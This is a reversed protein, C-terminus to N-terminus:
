GAFYVGIVEMVADFDLDGAYYAAIAALVEDADIRGDGDADYTAAPGMAVAGALAQTVAGAVGQGDGDPEGFTVIARLRRGADRETPTYPAQSAGQIAVWLGDSTSRHWQWRPEVPEGGDHTFTATLAEGVEPQGEPTITVSASEAVDVVDIDVTARVKGTRSPEAVVEVSYSTRDSEFDLMTGRGVLIQGTDREVSFLAADAGELSYVVNNGPNRDVAVPAGVPSGPASNEAVSRSVKGSPFYAFPDEAESVTVTVTETETRTVVTPTTDTPATDTPTTANATASWDGSEAPSDTNWARVRYHRTDGAQLGTHTYSNALLSSGGLSTWNVGGDDSVELEYRSVEAGLPTNWTVLIQSTGLPTAELGTPRGPPLIDEVMVTGPMPASWPGAVDAENVARVRYQFTDGPNVDTDVYKTDEVEHLQQEWPNTGRQVEYHSVPVGNVYDVADWTVTISFASDQTDQLPPAGPANGDSPTTRATLTATNNRENLDFVTGSYWGYCTGESGPSLIGGGSSACVDETWERDTEADCTAETTYTSDTENDATNVCVATHWVNTNGSNTKCDTQNSAVVDAGSSNICVEYPDYVVKATATEGATVGEVILTVVEGEPLGKSARRDALEPHHIDWTWTPPSANGDFTGTGAPVTTLGTTGAPLEVVINGSEADEDRNNIGQVTFAVQDAAVDASPGGDDVGLDALPGVHFITRVTASFIDKNGDTDDDITAHEMDADFDVIYTGLEDFDLFVPIAQDSVVDFALGSTLKSTFSTASTLLFYANCDGDGRVHTNGPPDGGELGSVKYTPVYKTWNDIYDNVPDRFIGTIVGARTGTCDMHQNTATQWSVTTGDTVGGSHADFVRGAVDEVHILATVNDFVEYVASSGHEAPTVIVSAHVRADVEDATDCMNDDVQVKCAFLTWPNVDGEDFVKLAPYGFCYEVRNDHPNDLSDGPGTPPFAFIEATLCQEDVTASSDITVPLIMTYLQDTVPDPLIYFGDAESTDGCQQLATASSSAVFSSDADTEPASTETLQKTTTATGASLGGTLAINVCGEAFNRFLFDGDDNGGRDVTVAFNVTDGASPEKDDVSVEIRYDPRSPASSRGNSSWGMWARVSNNDLRDEAEHSGTATVTAFFGQVNGARASIGAVNHLELTEQSRPLIEPISWTRETKPGGRESQTLLTTTAVTGASSVVQHGNLDASEQILVEVGYATLNGWNSVRVYSKGADNSVANNIEWEVALDVFLEDGQAAVESPSALTFVAALAALLGLLLTDPRRRKNHTPMPPTSEHPERLPTDGRRADTARPTEPQDRGPM